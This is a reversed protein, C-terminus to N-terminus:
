FEAMLMENYDKYGIYEISQNVAYPIKDQLNQTAKCGPVDNDFYIDIKPFSVALAIAHHLLSLSNLVIVTPITDPRKLKLWSLFDFYSEFIAMHEKIGVIISLGKAGISSKFGNATHIEWCQHENKWGLAYFTQQTATGYKNRYYIDKLYNMAFERIGRTELYRSLAFNTGGPQMRVIEFKFESEDKQFTQEKPSTYGPIALIDLANIEKIKQLVEGFSLNTWLAMGLQVIGGGYIKSIGAGGRDLWKGGKDWVTFSPTNKKTERLMSHYFYEKGTKRTPQYGLRGLFDVISISELDSIKIFKSM